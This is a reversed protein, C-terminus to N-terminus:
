LKIETLISTLRAAIVTEDDDVEILKNLSAKRCMMDGLIYAKIVRCLIM